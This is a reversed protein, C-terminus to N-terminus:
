ISFLYNKKGPLNQIKNGKSSDLCIETKLETKLRLWNDAPSLQADAVCFRCENQCLLWKFTLSSGDAATSDRSVSSRFRCAM